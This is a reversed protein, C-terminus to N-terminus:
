YRRKSLDSEIEIVANLKEELEINELTLFTARDKICTEIKFQKLCSAYWEQCEAQKADIITLNHGSAKM